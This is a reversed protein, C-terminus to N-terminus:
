TSSASATSITSIDSSRGTGTRRPTSSSSSSRRSRSGGTWRPALRSSSARCSAGGSRAGQWARAREAAARPRADRERVGLAPPGTRHPEGSRRESSSSTSTARCTTSAGPGPLCSSRRFAARAYEAEYTVDEGQGTEGDGELVISTTVRTWGSPTASERRELRYGDVKVSLGAVSDWLSMSRAYSGRLQDCRSQRREHEGCGRGRAQRLRPREHRPPREAADPEPFRPLGDAGREAREYPM